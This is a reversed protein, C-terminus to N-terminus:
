LKLGKLPSSIKVARFQKKKGFLKFDLQTSGRGYIKEKPFLLGPAFSTAAIYGSTSVGKVKSVSGTAPITVQKIKSEPVTVQAIGQVQAPAVRQVAQSAPTQVTAVFVGPSREQKVKPQLISTRRQAAATQGIKIAGYILPSATITERVALGYTPGARLYSSTTAAKKTIVSPPQMQPMLTQEARTSSFLPKRYSSIWKKSLPKQYLVPKKFGLFKGTKSYVRMGVAESEVLPGTPTAQKYFSGFRSTTKTKVAYTLSEVSPYEPFVIQTKSKKVLNGFMDYKYGSKLKSALQKQAFKQQGPSMFVRGSPKLKIKKTVQKVGFGLEKVVPRTGGQVLPRGFRYGEVSYKLARGGVTTTKVLGAGKALSRAIVSEEPVFQSVARYGRVGGRIAGRAVVPAAKGLGMTALTIGVEVGAPSLVVDQVVFGGVDGSRVRKYAESERLVIDEGIEKQSKGTFPSLATEYVLSPFQTAGAFFARGFQTAPPQSKYESRIRSLEEKRVQEPSKYFRYGEETREVQYGEQQYTSFKEKQKQLKSAYRIKEVPSVGPTLIAQKQKQSIEEEIEKYTPPKKQPKKKPTTGYVRGTKSPTSPGTKPKQPVPRGFSRIRQSLPDVM